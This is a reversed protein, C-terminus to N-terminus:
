ERKIKKKKIWLVITSLGILSVLIEEVLFPDNTFKYGMRLYKQEESEWLGDPIYEWGIWGPRHDTEAWYLQKTIHNVVLYDVTAFIDSTTFSLIILIILFTKNKM